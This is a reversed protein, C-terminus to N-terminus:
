SMQTLGALMGARMFYKSMLQRVEVPCEIILLDCLLAHITAAHIAFKQIRCEFLLFFIHSLTGSLKSFSSWQYSRTNAALFSVYCKAVCVEIGLFTWNRNTKMLLSHRVFSCSEKLKNHVREAFEDYSVLQFLLQLQRICAQQSTHPARAKAGIDGLLDCM